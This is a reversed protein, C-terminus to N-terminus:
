KGRIRDSRAGPDVEKDTVPFADVPTPTILKRWLQRGREDRRSLRVILLYAGTCAAVVVFGTVLNNV